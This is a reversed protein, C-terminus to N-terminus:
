QGVKPAPSPAITTTQVAGDVAVKTTTQVAPTLQAVRRDKFVTGIPNEKSSMWRIFVEHAALCLFCVSQLVVEPHGDAADKIMVFVLVAKGIHTWIKEDSIKGNKGLILDNANWRGSIAGRVIQTGMVSIVGFVLVACGLLMWSIIIEPTM